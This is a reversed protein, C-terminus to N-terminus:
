KEDVGKKNKLFYKLNEFFPNIAHNFFLNNM